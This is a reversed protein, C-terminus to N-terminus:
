RPGLGENVIAALDLYSRDALATMLEHLAATSRQTLFRTQQAERVTADARDIQRNREDIRRRQAIPELRMEMRQSEELNGAEGTYGGNGSKGNEAEPM